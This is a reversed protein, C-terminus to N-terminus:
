TNYGDINQQRSRAVALAREPVDEVIVSGAATYSSPGLEVPAVLATLVGTRVEPGIKTRSKKKTKGDYNATITVAGLNAAAGVDADGVYSLHPVKAGEGIVSNKIEVFTGAKAGARLETGPRLYAFPGVNVEDGISAGDCHAHRVTAREGVTTDVLTSGAGILTGAGVQATGLLQVGPELTVDPALEVAADIRVRNPDIIRVGALMHREAILRQAHRAVQALQVQDNVGLVVAQDAVAHAKLRGGLQGILPLVDPLYYEGQANDAGLQPLASALEAKQFCFIGTNVETIALEADTADGPEKTEVVRLVEGSDGRVVRGYGAPDELVTTVMTAAAGSDAHARVIEAITAASVLPVDGSLVVVPGDGQLRALGAAVAGGTGDQTLQPVTVVSDPLVADLPVDPSAVVVVEDAGAELAARVPWCVLPMGCLDSLVKPTQSRMRTGKGAAMVVTSFGAM